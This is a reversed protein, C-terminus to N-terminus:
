FFNQKVCKLDIQKMNKNQIGMKCMAYGDLCRFVCQNVFILFTKYIFVSAVKKEESVVMVSVVMMMKVVLIMSPKYEHM